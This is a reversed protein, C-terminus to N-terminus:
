DSDVGDMFELELLEADSDNEDDSAPEVGAAVAIPRLLNRSQMDVGDSAVQGNHPAATVAVSVRLEIEANEDDSLQDM